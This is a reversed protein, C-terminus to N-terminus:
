KRKITRVILRYLNQMAKFPSLVFKGVRYTLSHRIQYDGAQYWIFTQLLTMEQIAYHRKKILEDEDIPQGVIMPLKNKWKSNFTNLADIYSQNINTGASKHEILIDPAILIKYGQEIVQMSIDIDYGHFGNYMKDDFKITSFLDKRIMFWLGDVAVVENSGCRNYFEDYVKYVGDVTRGQLIHGVKRETTFWYCPVDLMVQGGIVGIMGVNDGLLWHTVGGM